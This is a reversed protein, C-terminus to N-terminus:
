SSLFAEDFFLCATYVGFLKRVAPTVLRGFMVASIQEIGTCPQPHIWFESIMKNNRLNSATFAVHLLVM